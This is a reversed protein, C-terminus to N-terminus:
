YRERNSYTGIFNKIENKIFILINGGTFSVQMKEETLFVFDINKRGASIKVIKAAAAEIKLNIIKFLAKLYEPVPGFRDSIEDIIDKLEAKTKISSLKRYFALRLSEDSIYEKPIFAKVPVEIEVEPIKVYKEGKILALEQALIDNYYEFGIKMINGHQKKGLLDGAGRLQMDRLALQFGGGLASFSSLADVRKKVGETLNAKSYMIYCYGKINSRGVRGRLQYIDALGMREASDIIMTNVNPIDLGNEVITTAVLCDFDGKIFKEMIEDIRSPNMRGHIYETKLGDIERELDNKVKKIDRISSHIYFAQGGREMERVLVKKVKRKDFPMTVTKVGLRGPPPTNILSLGKVKGLAMALTRPIPTATITLTDIGKFKYRLEEKQKVGFRQEEDIILLGPAPFNLNESFLAHTGIVIDVKGENIKKITEKSEGPSVLRSLMEIIVPFESFRELLTHFHQRCLVTTPALFIVQRGNLIARFAARMAVETKGFGVDGCVLRDMAKGSEMDKLVAKTAEEQHETLKYPFFDAFEKEFESHPEFALGSERRGKHIQILKSSFNKVSERVKRVRESWNTGTLSDVKIGAKKGSYKHVMAASEASVFINTGGRYEIKLYDAAEGGTGADSLGRFRGIGFHKHVVYDGSKLDSAESVNYAPPPAYYRKHHISKHQISLDGISIVATKLEAISFGENLYGKIEDSIEDSVIGATEDIINKAKKLEGGTPAVIFFKYGSKKLLTLQSKIQKRGASFNFLSSHFTFDPPLYNTINIYFPRASKFIKNKVFSDNQGGFNIVVPKRSSYEGIYSTASEQRNFNVPIVEAKTLEKISRQTEANFEKLSEVINDKFLVRVPNKRGPPWFDIVNGRRAFDGEDPVVKNRVYYGGTLNDLLKNYTTKKPII